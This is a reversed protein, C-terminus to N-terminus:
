RTPSPTAHEHKVQMETGNDWCRERLVLVIEGMAVMDCVEVITWEIEEDFVHAAAGGLVEFFRLRATGRARSRLMATIPAGLDEGAHRAGVAAGVEAGVILPRRLGVAAGVVLSRAGVAAGM